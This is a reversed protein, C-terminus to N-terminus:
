ANSGWEGNSLKGLKGLLLPQADELLIPQAALRLRALELLLLVAAALLLVGLGLLVLVAEFRHAQALLERYEMYGPGAAARRAFRLVAAGAALIYLGALAGQAADRWDATQQRRARFVGVLLLLAAIYHTKM